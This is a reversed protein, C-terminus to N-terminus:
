PSLPLLVFTSHSLPTLSKSFNHRSYIIQCRTYKSQVSSYMEKGIKLQVPCQGASCGVTRWQVPCQSVSYGVTNWQVTLKFFLIKRLIKLMINEKINM